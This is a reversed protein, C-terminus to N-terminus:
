SFFSQYFSEFFCLQYYVIHLFHHIIFQEFFAFYLHFINYNAKKFPKKCGAQYYVLRFILEGERGADTACVLEEVDSRFMLDKLIKFQAKKDVTVEWKWQEPIIPLNERRWKKYNEDNKSITGM